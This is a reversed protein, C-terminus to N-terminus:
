WERVVRFAQDGTTEDPKARGRAASRTYVYSHVYGSGRVVRFEGAAAGTPDTEPSYHYYIPDYWDSCYEWVNGLMDYLGFANPLLSGVPATTAFGDTWDSGTPAGPLWAMFTQDPTNATVALTRTMAGFPWATRSGARCAYEWEAETPLRYRGGEKDSLWDCFAVADSWTLQVVPHEDTQEFGPTRWNLEPRSQYDLQQSFVHSGGRGSTEAYTKYNTAEVFQRFQGVTVEHAAMFFPRTIRVRHEPLEEPFDTRRGPQLAPAGMDFEGAPIPVLQMGISNVQNRMSFDGAIPVDGTHSHDWVRLTGELGASVTTTGDGPIVVSQIELEPQEILRRLQLTNADWLRVAHDEGITALKQGDASVFVKAMRDPQTTAALREGSEADRAELEGNIHSGYLRLGDPSLALDYWSSSTHRERFEQEVELDPLKLFQLLSEIGTGNTKEQLQRWGGAILRDSTSNFEIGSYDVESGWVTNAGDPASLDWIALASPRAYTGQDYGTDCAAVWRGDRSLALQQPQGENWELTQSIRRENLDWVTVRQSLPHASACVDGNLDIDLDAIAGADSALTATVAGTTLDSIRLSGDPSATVVENGAPRLVMAQVPAREASLIRSGAMAPAADTQLGIAAAASRASAALADFGADQPLWRAAIQASLSAGEQIGILLVQSSGTPLNSADIVDFQVVPTAASDLGDFAIGTAPFRQSQPAVEVHPSLIFWTALPTATKALVYALAAPVRLPNEIVLAAIGIERDIVLNNWHVESDSMKLRPLDPLAADLLRATEWSWEQKPNWLSRCRRFLANLQDASAQQPLDWGCAAAIPKLSRSDDLLDSGADASVAVHLVDPLAGEIPTFWLIYESDPRVGTVTQFVGLNDAPLDTGEAAVNARVYHDEAAVTGGGTELVGWRPLEGDTVFVLSLGAASRQTPRFKAAVFQHSSSSSLQNWVTRTASSEKIQPLADAVSRLASTFAASTQAKRAVLQRAANFAALMGEPTPSFEPYKREIGLAKTVAAISEDDGFTGTPSLRMATQLTVPGSPVEFWLIYEQGPLIQGGNLAQYITM